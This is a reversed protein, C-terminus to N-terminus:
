PRRTRGPAAIRRAIAHALASPARNPDAGLYLLPEILELEGLAPRGDPLAVLDVRAYLLDQPVQALIRRALSLEQPAAEIPAYADLHGTSGMGPPRRIAHSFERDFFVLSHEGEDEFSPLYPQVMAESGSQVLQLHELAEEADGRRFRRTRYGGASVSPKVVIDEWGGEPFLDAADLRAGPPLWRTPVTEIGANALERLYGKHGNRRLVDPPNEVRTAGEVRAVWEFFRTPQRSYDWTSRVVACRASAWPYREESWVAPEVTLGLEGLALALLRDDPHLEPWEAATVLAVDPM